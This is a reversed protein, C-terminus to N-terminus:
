GELGVHALFRAVATGLDPAVGFSRAAAALDEPTTHPQPVLLGLGALTGAPEVDTLRDGVYLSRTVDLGFRAAAERHHRTGPKRCDCPGTVLPHHPCHYQATVHAGEAALLAAVRDRVRAYDEETFFGRAIGGQNTVVIVPVGAENLRRIATAAGPILRVDEVRSVHNTDVNITGDRDLFAAPTPMM